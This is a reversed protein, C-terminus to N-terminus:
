IRELASSHVWGVTGDELEIEKWEKMTDDSIHVKRGEHVKILVTGSNDPTSKLAVEEKLIIADDSKKVYAYLSYAAMNAFISVFVSIVAVIIASKRMRGNKGFLIVALSLLIFLFSVIGVVAWSDVGIMNRVANFWTTLFLEYQETVEDKILSEAFELNAKSDEDAPNLRLAREYNVISKGLQNNRFYANGLNYYLEASSGHEAIIGEYVDIAESYRGQSYASDGVAKTYVDTSMQQMNEEAVAATLPMLLLLMYLIRTM